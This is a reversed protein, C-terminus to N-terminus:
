LQDSYTVPLRSCWDDFRKRAMSAVDVPVLTPTSTLKNLAIHPVTERSPVFNRVDDILIGQYGSSINIGMPMRLMHRRQQSPKNDIRPWLCKLASRCAPGCTAGSIEADIISQVSSPTTDTIKNENLAKAYAEPHTTAYWGTFARPSDHRLFARVAEMYLVPDSPVVNTHQPVLWDVIAIKLCTDISSLPDGPPFSTRIHLGRGGTYFVGIHIADSIQRLRACVIEAANTALPWCRACYEKKGCSCSRVDAYDDIDIDFVIPEAVIRDNVNPTQKANVLPESQLVFAGADIRHPHYRNIMSRFEGLTRPYLNRDVITTTPTSGRTMMIERMGGGGPTCLLRWISEIPYLGGTYFSSVLSEDVM